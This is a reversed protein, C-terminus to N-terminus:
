RRVAGAFDAYDSHPEDDRQRYGDRVAMTVSSAIGILALLLLVTGLILM